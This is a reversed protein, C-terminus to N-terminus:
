GHTVELAPLRGAFVLVYRGALLSRAERESVATIQERHPPVTSQCPSRGFFLFTFRQPATTINSMAVEIIVSDNTTLGRTTSTIGKPPTEKATNVTILYIGVLYFVLGTPIYMDVTFRSLFCEDSPLAGTKGMRMVGSSFTCNSVAAESAPMLKALQSFVNPRFSSSRKPMSGFPQYQDLCYWLAPGCDEGKKRATTGGAPRRMDLKSLNEAQALGAPTSTLRQGQFEVLPMRNNHVTIANRM